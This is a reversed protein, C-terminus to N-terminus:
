LHEVESILASRRFLSGFLHRAQFEALRHSAECKLHFSSLFVLMSNRSSNQRPNHAVKKHQVIVTRTEKPNPPLRVKEKFLNDKLPPTKM